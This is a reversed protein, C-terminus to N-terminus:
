LGLFGFRDVKKKSPPPALYGKRRPEATMKALNAALAASVQTDATEMDSIAPAPRQEGMGEMRIKGGGEPIELAQIFAASEPLGLTDLANILATRNKVLNEPKETMVSKLFYPLWQEREYDSAVDLARLKWELPLRVFRSQGPPAQSEKVVEEVQQRTLKGETVATRAAEEFGTADQARAMKTLDAKLDKMAKSEKTTISARMLTNYDDIVQAAPTNSIERPVPRVGLFSLGARGPTQQAGRAYTQAVFPTIQRGVYKAIDVFQKSYPDYADRIQEGWYDKNEILDDLIHIFTAEKAAITRAPHKVLGMADKLYSPLQLREESGNPLSEGTAPYYYDKMKEPPKGTFAWHMLGGMLGVSFMLGATYQLVLRDEIKLSEVPEGRAFQVAQRLVGKAGSIDRALLKASGINFRPFQLWFSFLSRATAGINVNDRAVAGWVNDAHERVEYAIRRAEEQTPERGTERSFREVEHLYEHWIQGNKGQPVVFDMLGSSATKLLGGAAKLPQIAKLAESAERLHGSLINKLNTEAAVRTGGGVLINAIEVVNPDAFKPNMLARDMELGKKMYIPLAAPATAMKYLGGGLRRVDGTFMGGVTDALGMWARSAMANIGEFSLHWASLAMQLHRVGFLANQYVEFGDNGAWGRSAFNEFQRAVEEPAVRYDVQMWGKLGPVDEYGMREPGGGLPLTEEDAREPIMQGARREVKTWVEGYSGPLKKWGEPMADLSKIVKLKGADKVDKIARQAGIFSEHAARGAMVTQALTPYRPKLGAQIGAPISSVTRLNLFYQPGQISKTREAYIAQKLQNLRESPEWLHDLYNTLDNLDIGLEHINQMQRREETRYFEGFAKFTPDTIQDTQGAEYLRCFEITRPDAFNTTPDYKRFERNMRTQEKATEAQRGAIKEHTWRGEETRRTPWFMASLWDKVGRYRTQAAELNGTIKSTIGGALRWPEEEAEAGAVRFQREAGAEAPERGFLEGSRAKAFIDGASEYGTIAKILRTFFDKIKQFITDPAKKPDWEAYAQARMEPNAGYKKTIKALEEPTLYVQEIRHWLEHDLTRPGEGRAVEIFSGLNFPLLTHAGAITRGELSTIGLEAYEPPLEEGFDLKLSGDKAEAIIVTQGSKEQIEWARAYDSDPGFAMAMREPPMEEVTGHEGWRDRLLETSLPQRALHAKAIFEQLVRIADERTQANESARNFEEMFKPDRNGAEVIMDLDSKRFGGVLEEEGGAIKFLRDPIGMGPLAPQVEGGRAMKARDAATLAGQVMRNFMEPDAVMNAIQNNEADPFTRLVISARDRDITPFDRQLEELRRDAEIMRDITSGAQGMPQGPAAPLPGPAPKKAGAPEPSVSVTQGGPLAQGGSPPEPPPAPVRPPAPTPEPPLAGTVENQLGAPNVPPLGKSVMGARAAAAAPPLPLGGAPAAGAAGPATTGRVATAAGATAMPQPREPMASIPRPREGVLAQVLRENLDLPLPKGQRVAELAEEPLNEALIPEPEETGERYSTLMRNVEAQAEEPTGVPARQEPTLKETEYERRYQEMRQQFEEPSLAQAQEVVSKINAWNEESIEAPKTDEIIHRELERGGPTALIAMTIAGSTIDKIDGGEAAAQAGGIAGMAPIRAVKPLGGTLEFAKGLAVGGAFAKVKPWIGPPAEAVQMMGIGFPGGLLSALGYQLIGAPASGLGELVKGALDTSVEEPRVSFMDAVNKWFKGVLTKEGGSLTVQLNALGRLGSKFGVKLRQGIQALPQDWGPHAPDYSEPAPFPARSPAAPAPPPGLPHAGEPAASTTKRLKEAAPLGWQKKFTDYSLDTAEPATPASTAVPAATPGPVPTAAPPGVIGWQQKFDEYSQGNPM